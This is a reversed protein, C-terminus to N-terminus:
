LEKENSQLALTVEDAKVMLAHAVLASLKSMSRTIVHDMVQRAKRKSIKNTKEQKM